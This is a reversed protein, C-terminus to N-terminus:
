LESPLSSTTNFCIVVRLGWPENKLNLLQLDQNRLEIKIKNTTTGKLSIANVFFPQSASYRIIESQGVDIPIVGIINETGNIMSDNVLNSCIFISENIAFDSLNPATTFTTASTNNKLEIPASFGLLEWPGDVGLKLGYTSSLKIDIKQTNNNPLIEICKSPLSNIEICRRIEENIGSPSWLGDNLMIEYKNMNTTDNTIYIKQNNKETTINPFINFCNFSHVYLRLNFAEKPLELPDDLKFEVTANNNSSVIYYGDNTKPNSRFIFPIQHEVIAM